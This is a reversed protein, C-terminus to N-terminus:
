MWSTFLREEKSKHPPILILSSNNLLILAILTLCTNIECSKELYDDGIRICKDSLDYWPWFATAFKDEAITHM